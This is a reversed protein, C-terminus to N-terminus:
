DHPLERIEVTGGGEYVPNGTLYERAAALSEARIRIYGALRDSPNGPTGQKRFAEGAGISSGGDFIGRGRLFAFYTSWMDPSAEAVADDHMLLIFDRM